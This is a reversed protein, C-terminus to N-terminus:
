KKGTSGFGNTGRQTDALEPVEIFAFDPIQQIVAQAIRDGKDVYFSQSISNNKLMVKIEGRYDSDIVGVCNQLNVFNKLAHGSRSYIFMAYGRMLEVAIGTSVAKMHGPEIEVRDTSYLDFAASGDTAKKPQIAFDNLKKFLIVMAM